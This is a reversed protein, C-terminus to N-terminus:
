KTPGGKQSVQAWVAANAADVNEAENIAALSETYQGTRHFTAASALWLSVLFDRAFDRRRELEDTGVSGEAPELTLHILSKIPGVSGDTPAESLRRDRGGGGNTSEMQGPESVTTNGTISNSNTPAGGVATSGSLGATSRNDLNLVMSHRKDPKGNAPGDPTYKPATPGFFRSYNVFLQQQEITAEEPGDLHEALVARTMMLNLLQEFLEVAVVPFDSVEELRTGTRPTHKQQHRQPREHNGQEDGDQDQDQDQADSRNAVPSDRRKMGGHLVDRELSGTDDNGDDVQYEDDGDDGADDDGEADDDSDDAVIGEEADEIEQVALEGQEIGLELIEKANKFERTATLLLGLLHFSPLHTQDIELATRAAEVAQKVQRITALHLALYYQADISDPDLITAEQFAHLAEAHHDPRTDPDMDSDAAFVHAIGLARKVKSLAPRDNCISDNDMALQDAYEAYGLAEHSHRPDCYKIMMRIGVILTGIVASDTDSDDDRAHLVDETGSKGIGAGYLIAPGLEDDKRGIRPRGHYKEEDHDEEENFDKEVAGGERGSEGKKAMQRDIAGSDTERGKRVLAVYAALARRCEDYDGHSALLLILHRQIRQSQFTLTMCRYFLDIITKAHQPPSGSIIWNGMVVDTYELVDSNIRGARPFSSSKELHSMTQVAAMIYEDHFHSSKRTKKANFATEASGDEPMFGGERSSRHLVQSYTKLIVMRKTTRYSGYRNHPLYRLYTKLYGLQLEVATRVTVKLIANRYLIDEAVQILVHTREFDRGQDILRAGEEYVKSAQEFKGRKELALGKAYIAHLMVVFSYNPEVRARSDLTCGRLAALTQEDNGMYM